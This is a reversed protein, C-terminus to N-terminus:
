AKCVYQIFINLLIGKFSINDYIETTILKILSTKEFFICYSKFVMLVEDPNIVFLLFILFQFINKDDNSLKVRNQIKTVDNLM